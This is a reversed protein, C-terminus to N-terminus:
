MHSFCIVIVNSPLYTIINFSICMLRVHMCLVTQLYYYLVIYCV